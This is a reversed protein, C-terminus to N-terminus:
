SRRPCSAIAAMSDLTLSTVATLHELCRRLHGMDGVPCFHCTIAVDHLGHGCARAVDLVTRASTLHAWPVLTLELRRLRTLRGLDAALTELAPTSTRVCRLRLSVLAPLAAIRAGLAGEGSSRLEDLDWVTINVDHFVLVTLSSFTAPTRVSYAAAGPGMGSLCSRRLQPLTRRQGRLEISLEPVHVAHLVKAACHTGTTCLDLRCHGGTHAVHCCTVAIHAHKPVRLLLSPLEPRLDAPLRALSDPAALAAVLPTPLTQLVQAIAGPNFTGCQVLPESWTSWETQLFHALQMACTQTLRRGRRLLFTSELAPAGQKPLVTHLSESTATAIGLEHLCCTQACRLDHTNSSVSRQARLPPGPAGAGALVSVLAMVVSSCVEVTEALDAAHLYYDENDPIGNSGSKWADIATKSFPLHMTLVSDARTHLTERLVSSRAVDAHALGHRSGDNAICVLTAEAENLEATMWPTLLPSQSFHSCTGCYNNGAVVPVKLLSHRGLEPVCRADTRYASHAAALRAQV